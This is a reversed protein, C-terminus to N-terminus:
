DVLRNKLAYRILEANKRVHLKKLIRSRLTGITQPSVSWEEAIKKQSEGSAMKIMVQYERNSLSEHPLKGPDGSLESALLEAVSETIFKNGKHVETVASLLEEPAARKTLYGSAGAKMVRLAYIEEPYASLVLIPLDPNHHRMEILTELGGKGSMGIDLVVVDIGGKEVKELGERGDCAESVAVIGSQEELFQRLGKRVVPHDDVVLVNIM